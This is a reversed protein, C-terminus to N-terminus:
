LLKKSLWCIHVMHHDNPPGYGKKDRLVFIMDLVCRPRICESLNLLDTSEHFDETVLFISNWGCHFLAQEFLTQLDKKNKNSKHNQHKEFYFFYFSMNSHVLILVCKRELENWLEFVLLTRFKFCNNNLIFHSMPLSLIKFIYRTIQIAVFKWLRFFLSFVM